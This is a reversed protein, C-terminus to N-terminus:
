MIDISVTYGCAELQRMTMNFSKNKGAEFDYQSARDIGNAKAFYGKSQKLKQREKAVFLYVPRGDIGWHGSKLRKLHMIANYLVLM